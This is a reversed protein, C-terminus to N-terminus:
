HQKVAAMVSASRGAFTSSLHPFAATAVATLPGAVPRRMSLARCQCVGSGRYRKPHHTVGDRTRHLMLTPQQENVYPRVDNPSM